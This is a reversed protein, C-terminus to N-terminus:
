QKNPKACFRHWFTLISFINWKIMFSKISSFLTEGLLLQVQNINYHEWNGLSGTYLVPYTDTCKDASCLTGWTGQCHAIGCLMHCCMMIYWSLIGESPILLLHYLQGPLWVLIHYEPAWSFQQSKSAHYLAWHSIFMLSSFWLSYIWNTHRLYNKM